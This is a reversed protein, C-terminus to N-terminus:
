TYPILKMNNMGSPSDKVETVAGLLLIGVFTIFLPVKLPGTLSALYVIVGIWVPLSLLKLWKRTTPTWFFVVIFIYCIIGSGM